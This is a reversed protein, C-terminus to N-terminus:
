RATLEARWIEADLALELGTLNRLAALAERAVGEDEDDLRTVLAPLSRASGLSELAACAAARVAPAPHDFAVLVAEALEDRHLRRTALARLAALVRGDDESELELWVGPAQAEFWTNEAALWSRWREPAPGLALGSFQELSRCVRERVGRSDADLLEIWIPLAEDIRARALAASLTQVCVEDASRLLPCLQELFAREGPGPNRPAIRLCAEAIARHHRADEFTAVWALFELGAPDAREAVAALLEGRLEPGSRRWAPVLAAFAREDRALTTVVSSRLARRLASSPSGDGPTALLVLTALENGSACGQLCELAALRAPEAAAPTVAQELFRALPRAGPARLEAVLRQREAPALPAQAGGAHLRAFAFEEASAGNKYGPLGLTGLLAASALLLALTSVTAPKVPACSGRARGRGRGALSAALLRARLHRGRGPRVAPGRRLPDRQELGARRLGGQGRRVRHLQQLAGPARRSRLDHGHLGLEVELRHDRRRAPQQLHDRDRRRARATNTTVTSNSRLEFDGTAFIKVPGLTADIELETNSRMLFDDVVLTAPGVIKLKGSTVSLASYHHEGPPITFASSVSLVGSTPYSPVAVAAMEVSIERAEMDGTVRVGPADDDFAGDLGVLADGYISVNADIAVTEFSGVNGFDNVFEVGDPYPGDDPDYSDVTVNSNLLVGRAGFAAFQYAGTPVHWVMLQVGAPERGAAGVCRLRVHDLDIATDDRGDVFSVQYSIAGAERPYVLARVDDIGGELLVAYAENLGGEAACFARLDERAHEHEKHMRLNLVSLSATMGGLALLLILSLVLMSGSRAHTPPTTLKM